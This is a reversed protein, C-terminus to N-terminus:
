EAEFWSLPLRTFYVGATEREWSLGIAGDPLVTMCQYVYHYPNFCRNRVWTRGGDESLRLVGCGRYPRMLSANAFIIRDSAYGAGTEGDADRPVTIANPQSFIDPLEPDFEVTDWTEGGDHSVAKGVRGLHHQNRFLCLVDGNAREVFVSEHTTADDDRVDREDVVTGNVVRGENIAKGRRWTQGGDDSILAGGANFKPSSGTCYYPILLRGRYSGASLQIGNGPSTGLFGMWNEKVMHNIHRPKSWTEGDDDSHVEVLYSTRATLLSEHADVGERLYINGAPAGERTVNGDEDVRYATPESDIGTVTGDSQLLYKTGEEDHLILRGQVDLGLGKEANAFGRGGPFHDIVVTVRGSDRDCVICSDIVSAGDLGEGPFAIVTQLPMWTRGSDLSRRIVFHIENPADNSIVVRQDAGAITVGNPTTVLSPIRYSASGEYGKDFLATDTTPPVDSIKRIQGESLPYRYIGGSRVEGCLRVGTTDEGVSVYALGELDGFFAQGPLHVEMNGNVYIDVAGRFARIVLDHWGGDNWDGRARYECWQGCIFARYVFGDDDIDVNMIQRKADRAALITGFQGVGRVRFQAHITGSTTERLSAVDKDALYAAAFEIDPQPVPVSRQVRESSWAEPACELADVRLHPEEACQLTGSDAYLSPCIDTACAFAQYGDVYVRTGFDGFTLHLDHHEGFQVGYSDEVDLAIGDRPADIMIAGRVVSVTLVVDGAEDRAELLMGDTAAHFAAHLTAGGSPLSTADWLQASHLSGPHNTPQSM